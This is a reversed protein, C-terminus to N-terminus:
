GKGMDRGGWYQQFTDSTGQEQVAKYDILHLQYLNNAVRGVMEETILVSVANNGGLIVVTETETETETETLPKLKLKLKPHQPVTSVTKLKRVQYNRVSIRQQEGRLSKPPQALILLLASPM